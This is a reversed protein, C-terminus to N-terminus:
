VSSHMFAIFKHLAISNLCFLHFAHYTIGIWVASTAFITLISLNYSNLFEFCITFVAVLNIRESNPLRFGRSFANERERKRPIQMFTSFSLNCSCLTCQFEVIDNNANNM